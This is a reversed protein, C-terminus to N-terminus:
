PNELDTVRQDLLLLATDASDMRDVLATIQGTAATLETMRTPLDLDYMTNVRVTLVDMDAELQTVRQAMTTLRGNMEALPVALAALADALQQKRSEEENGLVQLRQVVDEWRAETEPNETWRRPSTFPPPTKTM